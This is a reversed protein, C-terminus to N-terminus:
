IKDGLKSIIGKKLSAELLMKDKPKLSINTINEAFKIALRTIYSLPTQRIIEKNALKRIDEVKKTEIIESAKAIALTSVIDYNLSTLSNSQIICITAQEINGTEILEKIRNHEKRRITERYSPTQSGLSNWRM